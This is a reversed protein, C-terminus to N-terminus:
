SGQTEELIEDLKLMSDSTVVGVVRNGTDVVPIQDLEHEEMAATAERITWSLRAPRVSEDVVLMINTTSWDARELHRIDHLRVMGLFHDDDDAVIGAVEKAPFAHGWVFDSVSDERRVIHRPTRMASTIPMQFRGELHGTRSDRQSGSVSTSGIIVQSVAVAILGPVVFQPADTSEAVFMVAALPTRYGGALFAAVGIFPFFRLASPGVDIWGGVLRGVLLGSVALPIFVGGVGGAALTTGTAVFRAVLLLGVLWLSISPDTVWNSLESGATPGLTLPREILADVILVLGGLIIAGAGVRQWLAVEVQFRKAFKVMRSFVRAGAGCLLGVLVAGLLERQGIEVAFLTDENVDFPRSDGGVGTVLVFTVYSTAASILSPLLARRGLDGKYPSELAFLVGTAPAQFIAAVGAAAGAVLLAKGDKEKFLWKLRGQMASGITAGGYVSPGELGLAGGLGVTAIGAGLRFPLQLMRVVGHRSHYAKIYEESTSPSLKRGRDAWQLLLVAILLGLGPALAQQWLEAHLLGELMIEIALTEVGAVVLGTAVGVAAYAVFRLIRNRM